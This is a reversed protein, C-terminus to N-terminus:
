SWKKKPNRQHAHNVVKHIADCGDTSIDGSYLRFNIFTKTARISPSAADRGAILEAKRIIPDDYSPVEHGSSKLDRLKKM